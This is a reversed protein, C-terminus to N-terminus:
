RSGSGAVPATADVFWEYSWWRRYADDGLAAILPATQSAQARLAAEKAALTEGRLELTLAVEASPTSPGTSGDMWVGIRQNVPGWVTHFEPTLTAYLLRGPRGVSQWAATAWRSVARHDPHGTMGDPGFTVLTDPAVETILQRLREVPEADPLEACGGDRYGLFIHETVGVAALSAQLERRRIEALEDPSRPPESIGHEGATATVVVVRHGAGRALAMLGASLYAEDDPHAWIGLVTGLRSSLEAYAQTDEESM